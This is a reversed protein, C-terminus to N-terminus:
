GPDAAIRAVRRLGLRLATEEAHRLLVAVREEGERGRQRLTRALEVESAAEFPTSGMRNALRIAAEFHVEALALDGASAALLGLYHDAPGLCATAPARIVVATGAYPRMQEYVLSAHDRAQTGLVGCVGAVLALSMGETQDKAVVEWGIEALEELHALALDPQGAEAHILALATRLIPYGELAEGIVEQFMPELVVIEDRQWWTWVMVGGYFTLVLDNYGEAAEMSRRALAEAREVDGAILAMMAGVNLSWAAELPHVPGADRAEFRTLEDNVADIDGQALLERVRWMHGHLALFPDGVDAAIEGLETAAALREPAPDIGWLVNIRARLAYGLALRDGLRRAMAVADSSLALARELAGPAPVGSLAVIILPLQATVRARLHSDAAPLAGLVEELLDIQEDHADVVGLYSVPGARLATIALRDPDGISRALAAARAFNANAQEEDGARNQAEALAILADCLASQDAAGSNEAVELARTLHGVAEEFALLRLAREGAAICYRIAKDAGGLAAGMYFHHALENVYRDISEGHVRETALAIQYHYRVRRGRLLEGYIADRVLGHTFSYRDRVLGGARRLLRSEEARDFADLQQDPSLAAAEAVISAECEQGAVAAAQLLYIVDEPMRSVRRAVLERIAETPELEPPVLTEGHDDQETQGEGLHDLMEELFLPNGDTLKCLRPVLEVPVKPWSRVLEEVGDERLGELHVMEVSRGSRLDALAQRLWHGSRVETDIYMGVIGIREPDINRLVHRLLLLTPQDAFHLDDVVLLLRGSGPLENLTAAVAEFFRFRNGEPDGPDGEFPTAYERLRLVLRSLERLQWTPMRSIRDASEAHFYRGLAEAFPQFPAVPDEDCRGWLVLAGESEVARALEGVLRTKGIGPDGEVLLLDGDGKGVSAWWDRLLASERERGVLPGQTPSTPIRVRYGGPSEAAAGTRDETEGGADSAAEDPSAFFLAPDQTLIAHEMWSVDHGPEIGLEDVLTSRLDQYVRLAEAQRGSRYLALMRQSWLRERMPHQTTLTELEGIVSEHRGLTFAADLRLEIAALQMEELRRAEARAFPEDRVESFASGRWLSQAEELVRVAEGPRHRILQRKGDAVMREFTFIDTTEAAVELAYGPARTVILDDSVGAERLRKRLRSITSRLAIEAGEGEHDGWLSDILRDVSVILGRDILLRAVLARAKPGGLDVPRGAWAIELPGLVRIQLPGAPDTHNTVAEADSGAM